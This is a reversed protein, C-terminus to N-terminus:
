MANQHKSSNEPPPELEASEAEFEATKKKIFRYVLVVFIGVAIGVVFVLVHEARQIWVLLQDLKDGFFYGLFTILPATLLAAAGDLFVVKRFPIKFAGSSLFITSRLGVLFRAFFLTRKGYRHFYHNIAKIRHPTFFWTLRRHALIDKGFRRGIWYLCFDGSIAGAYLVILTPVFKIHGLYALYGGTVIILDEPIPFGMGCLLLLIFLGPYHFHNLYQLYFDLM